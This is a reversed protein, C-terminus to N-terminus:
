AATMMITSSASGASTDIKRRNKGAKRAPEPRRRRVQAGVRGSVEAILLMSGGIRVSLDNGTLVSFLFLKPLRAVRGDPAAEYVIKRRGARSALPKLRP